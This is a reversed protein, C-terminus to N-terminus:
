RQMSKFLKKAETSATSRPSSGNVVFRTTASGDRPRPDTQKANEDQQENDVLIGAQYLYDIEEASFCALDGTYLRNVEDTNLTVPKFIINNFVAYRDHAIKIKHTFKSLM